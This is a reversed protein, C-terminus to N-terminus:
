KKITLLRWYNLNIERDVETRFYEKIELNRNPRRSFWKIYIKTYMKENKINIIYGPEELFFGYESCCTYLILDGINYKM